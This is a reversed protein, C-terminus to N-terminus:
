PRSGKLITNTPDDPSPVPPISGLPPPELSQRFPKAPAKNPGPVNKYHVSCLCGPEAELPEPPLLVGTAPHRYQIKGLAETRAEIAATAVIAAVALGIVCLPTKM